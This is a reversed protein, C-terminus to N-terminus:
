KEIGDASAAEDFCLKHVAGVVAVAAVYIQSGCGCGCGCWNNIRFSVWVRLRVMKSIRVAVAGGGAGFYNKLGCGSATQVEFAPQVSFHAIIHDKRTVLGKYYKKKSRLRVRLWVKLINNVAYAGQELNSDSGFGCDYM